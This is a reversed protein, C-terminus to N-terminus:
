RSRQAETLNVSVTRETRSPVIQKARRADLAIEKAKIFAFRPFAIRVFCSLLKYESCIIPHSEVALYPILSHSSHFFHSTM